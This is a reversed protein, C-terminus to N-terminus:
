IKLDQDIIFTKMLSRTHAFNNGRFLSPCNSARGQAFSGDGQSNM